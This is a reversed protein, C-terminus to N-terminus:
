GAAATASSAPLAAARDYLERLCARLDGQRKAFLAALDAPPEEGLDRVLEALLEATPNHQRLLPLRGPRHSTALIANARRQVRWWDWPGLQELGDLLLVGSIRRPLQQLAVRNEAPARRLRLWTVPGLLPALAELLTTKGSGHPGVLVGRRGNAAFRALVATLPEDLRPAIAHLREVRYPNHQAHM